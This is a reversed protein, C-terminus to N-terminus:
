GLIGIRELPAKISKYSFGFQIKRNVGVPTSTLSYTETKLSRCSM